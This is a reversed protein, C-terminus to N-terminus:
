DQSFCSDPPTHKDLAFPSLKSLAINDQISVLLAALELLFM